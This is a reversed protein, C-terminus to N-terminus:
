ATKHLAEECVLPKRNTKELNRKVIDVVLCAAGCEAILTLPIGLFPVASLLSYVFGCGTIYGRYRNEFYDRTEENELRQRFPRTVDGGMDDADLVSEGLSVLVDDVRSSELFEAPIAHIVALGAAVPAGLVPRMSVFKVAPVAIYRGGPFLRHIIAGTAKFMGLRAVRKFRQFKVRMSTKTKERAELAAGFSPDLEKLAAFFMLSNKNLHKELAFATVVTVVRGWRSLTWFLESFDDAPDRLLLFILVGAAAYVIQANRLPKLVDWFVSRLRKSSAFLIMGDFASFIGKSFGAYFSAHSADKTAFAGSSSDSGPALQALGSM